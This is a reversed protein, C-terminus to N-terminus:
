IIKEFFFDSKLKKLNVKSKMLKLKENQFIIESNM